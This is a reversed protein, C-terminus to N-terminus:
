GSRQEGTHEHDRAAARTLLVGALLEGVQVNLVSFLAEGLV